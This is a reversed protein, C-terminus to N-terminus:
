KVDLFDFLSAMGVVIDHAHCTNALQNCDCYILKNSLTMLSSLNYDLYHSSWESYPEVERTDTANPMVHIVEPLVMHRATAFAEIPTMEVGENKLLQLYKLWSSDDVRKMAIKARWLWIYKVSLRRIWKGRTEIAIVHPIIDSTANWNDPLGTLFLSNLDPVRSIGVYKISPDFECNTLNLALQKFTCGQSGHATIAWALKLPMGKVAVHINKLKDNYEWTNVAYIDKCLLPYKSKLAFWDWEMEEVTLLQGQFFSVVTNKCSFRVIIGVTGNCWGADPDINCTLRVLAGVKLYIFNDATSHYKALMVGGESQNSGPVIVDTYIFRIQARPLGSLKGDNYIKVDANRSAVRPINDPINTSVFRANLLAIQEDTATGYGVATCIDGFATDGKQRVNQTLTIHKFSSILDPSEIFMQAKVPKTQKPDGIMIITKGGFPLDPNLMKRMAEDIYELFEKSMMSMEDIIFTDPFTSSTYERTNYKIFSAMPGFAVKVHFTRHCSIGNILLAASWQMASISPHPLHPYLIVFLECFKKILFSKGSGAIGVIMHNDTFMSRVAMSQENTLMGFISERDEESMNRIKERVNEPTRPIVLNPKIKKCAPKNWQRPPPHPKNMGAATFDPRHWM